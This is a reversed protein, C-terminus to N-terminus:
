HVDKLIVVSDNPQVFGISGNTVIGAQNILDVVASSAQVGAGTSFAIKVPGSFHSHRINFNRKGALHLTAGSFTCNEFDKGDVDVAENVFQKDIVPELKESPVHEYGVPAQHATWLAAFVAITATAVVGYLRKRTVVNAGGASQGRAPIPVPVKGSGQYVQAWTGLLSLLSVVQWIDM